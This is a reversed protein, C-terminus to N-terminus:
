RYHYYSVGIEAQDSSNTLRNAFGAGAKSLWIIVYEEIGAPLGVISPNAGKVYKKVSLITTM